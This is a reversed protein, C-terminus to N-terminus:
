QHILGELAIGQFAKKTTTVVQWPLRARTVPSTRRLPGNPTDQSTGESGVLEFHATDKVVRHSSTPRRLTPRREAQTHLHCAANERSCPPALTRNTLRCRALASSRTRYGCASGNRSHRGFSPGRAELGIVGTRTRGSAGTAAVGRPPELKGRQLTLAADRARLGRPPPALGGLPVVDEHRLNPLRVTNLGRPGPIECGGAPCAHPNERVRAPALTRDRRGAVDLGAPM